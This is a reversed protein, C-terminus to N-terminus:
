QDIMLEMKNEFSSCPVYVINIGLSEQKLFTEFDAQTQPAAANNFQWWLRKVFSLEPDHAPDDLASM